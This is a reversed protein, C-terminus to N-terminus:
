LYENPLLGLAQILGPEFPYGPLPGEMRAFLDLLEPLRNRGQHWVGRAWGLHNLGFYELFVEEPRAKLWHAAGRLMGSPADCIGVARPWDGHGIVAEALMGAPNAFNILWADPCV